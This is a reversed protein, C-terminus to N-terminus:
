FIHLRKSWYLQLSFHFTEPQKVTTSFHNWATFYFQIVWILFPVSLHTEPTAIDEHTVQVHRVFCFFSKILVAPQVRSVQPFKVLFVEQVDSPPDFTLPLASCWSNTCLLNLLLLSKYQNSKIRYGTNSNLTLEIKSKIKM